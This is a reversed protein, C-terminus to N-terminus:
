LSCVSHKGKGPIWEAHLHDQAFRRLGDKDPWSSFFAKDLDPFTSIMRERFKSKDGYAAQEVESEQKSSTDGSPYLQHLAAWYFRVPSMTPDNPGMPCSSLAAWESFSVDGDFTYYPGKDASILMKIWPHKWEVDQSLLVLSSYM